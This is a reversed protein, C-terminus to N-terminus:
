GHELGLEADGSFRAHEEWLVDCSERVWEILTAKHLLLSGDRFPVGSEVFQGGHMVMRPTREWEHYVRM